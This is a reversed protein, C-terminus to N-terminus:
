EEMKEVVGSSGERWEEGMGALPSRRVETEQYHKFKHTFKKLECFTNRGL